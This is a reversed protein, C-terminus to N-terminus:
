DKREKATENMGEILRDYEELESLSLFRRMESFVEDHKGTNWLSHFLGLSALESQPSLAVTRQYLILAREWDEASALLWRVTSNVHPSVSNM